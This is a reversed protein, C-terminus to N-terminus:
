TSYLTRQRQRGGTTQAEIYELIKNIQNSKRQFSRFSRLMSLVYFRFRVTIVTFGTAFLLISPMSSPCVSIPPRCGEDEDDDDGSARWWGVAVIM